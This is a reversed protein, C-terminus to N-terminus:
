RYLSRQIEQVHSVASFYSDNARDWWLAVRELEKEELFSCLMKFQETNMAEIETKAIKEDDIEIYPEYKITM